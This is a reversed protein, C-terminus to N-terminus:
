VLAQCVVRYSKLAVGRASGRSLLKVCLIIRNSLLAGTCANISIEWLTSATLTLWHAPAQSLVHGGRHQWRHEPTAAPLSTSVQRLASTFLSCSPSVGLRGDERHNLFNRTDPGYQLGVYHRVSM